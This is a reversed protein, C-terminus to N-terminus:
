ALFTRSPLHWGLDTVTINKRCVSICCLLGFILKHQGALHLLVSLEAVWLNKEKEHWKTLILLIRFGGEIGPTKQQKKAPPQFNSFLESILVQEFLNSLMFVAPLSNDRQWFLLCLSSKEQHRLELSVESLAVAQSLPDLDAPVTNNAGDLALTVSVCAVILLWLVFIHGGKWGHKKWSNAGTSSPIVCCIWGLWHLFCSSFHFLTSFKTLPLM